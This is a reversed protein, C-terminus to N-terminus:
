ITWVQVKEAIICWNAHDYYSSIIHLDDVYKEILSELEGQRFVHYYRHYTMVNGEENDQLSKQSNSKFLLTNQSLSEFKRKTTIRSSDTQQTSDVLDTKSSSTPKMINHVHNYCQFNDDPNRTKNLVSSKHDTANIHNKEEYVLKKTAAYNQKSDEIHVQGEAIVSNMIEQGKRQRDVIVSETIIGLSDTVVETKKDEAVVTKLMKRDGGREAETKQAKDIRPDFIITAKKNKNDKVKNSGNQVKTIVTRQNRTYEKTQVEFKVSDKKKDEAAVAKLEKDQVIVSGTLKKNVCVDEWASRSDMPCQIYSHQAKPDEVAKSIGVEATSMQIDGYHLSLDPFVITEEGLSGEEETKICESHEKPKLFRSCLRNPRCFMEVSNERENRFWVSNSPDNTVSFFQTVNNENTNELFTKPQTTKKDVSKNCKTTSKMFKLDIDNSSKAASRKLRDSSFDNCNGMLYLPKTSANTNFIETSKGNNMGVGDRSTTLSNVTKSRSCGRQQKVDVCKVAKEPSKVVKVSDSGGSNDFSAIYETVSYESSKELYKMPEKDTYKCRKEQSKPFGVDAFENSSVISKLTQDSYNEQQKVVETNAQSNPKELRKKLKTSTRESAMETPEISIVNDCEKFAIYEGSFNGARGACNISAALKTVDFEDCKEVSNELEIDHNKSCTNLKESNKNQTTLQIMKESCYINSKCFDESPKISCEGEFNDLTIDPLDRGKNIIRPSVDVFKDCEFSKNEVFEMKITNNFAGHQTAFYDIGTFYDSNGRCEAFDTANPHFPLFSGKIRNIDNEGLETENTKEGGPHLLRHDGNTSNFLQQSLSPILDLNGTNQTKELLSHSLHIPRLDFEKKKKCILATCKPIDTQCTVTADMNKIFYQSVDENLANLCPEKKESDYHLIRGKENFNFVHKSHTNNIIFNKEATLEPSSFMHVKEVFSGKQSSTYSNPTTEHNILSCPDMEMAGKIIDLHSYNQEVDLKLNYLITTGSSNTSLESASLSPSSDSRSGSSDHLTLPSAEKYRSGSEKQEKRVMLAELAGDPSRQIVSIISEESDISSESQVESNNRAIVSVISEDSDASNDSKISERRSPSYPFERALSASTDGVPNWNSAADVSVSRRVQGKKIRSVCTNNSQHAKLSLPPSTDEGEEWGMECFGYRLFKMGCVYSDNNPRNAKFCNNTVALHNEPVWLIETSRLTHLEPMSYYSSIRSEMKVQEVEFTEGGSNIINQRKEFNLDKATTVKNQCSESNEQSQVTQLNTKPFLLNSEIKKEQLKQVTYIDNVINHLINVNEPYILSSNKVQNPAFESYLEPIVNKSIEKGETNEIDHKTKVNLINNGNVIDSPALKTMSIMDKTVLSEKLKEKNIKIENLNNTGIDLLRKLCDFQTVCSMSSRSRVLGNKTVAKVLYERPDSIISIRKQMDKMIEKDSSRRIRFFSPIIGLIDSLSWKKDEKKKMSEKEDETSENKNINDKDLHRLEIFMNGPDEFDLSQDRHLEQQSQQTSPNLLNSPKMSEAFLPRRISSYFHPKSTDRGSPSTSAALRMFVRRIFSYCTENPSPLESNSLSSKHCPLDSKQKRYQSAITKLVNTQTSVHKPHNELNSPSLYTNCLLLDDDSTDISTFVREASSGCDESVNHAPQHWPVLLDQSNFKCHNQEMAWVTIIVKGGIRLIRALEQLARVRRETTAFHHIVAISIAADFSEDRFPLQHNDCTLAERGRKKATQLMSNCHDVGVKYVESNLDLYKGNGCGIDAVLSGPELDLIFQKVHPWPMYRSDTFHPAIQDYVDHVYAKELAISRAQREEQASDTEKEPMCPTM